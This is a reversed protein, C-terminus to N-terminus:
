KGDDAFADQAYTSTVTLPTGIECVVKTIAAPVIKVVDTFSTEYLKTVIANIEPNRTEALSIAAEMVEEIKVEKDRILEAIGVADYEEYEVFGTM